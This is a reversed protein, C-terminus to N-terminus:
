SGNHTRGTQEDMIWGYPGQRQRGMAEVHERCACMGLSSRNRKRCGIKTRCESHPVGYFGNCTECFHMSDLPKEPTRNQYVHRLKGM